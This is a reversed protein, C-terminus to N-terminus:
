PLQAKLDALTYERLAGHVIDAFRHPVDQVVINEWPAPENSLTVAAFLQPEAVAAHLAPTVAWESAQLAVKNEGCAVSLWRACMLIDEARIGVLSHGLLYAMVAPGEDQNPAGYFKHNSGYTEGFGSLDVTLVPRGEKLLAAVAEASRSKGGSNVVLTPTGQPTEPLFFVAPLATREKLSLILTRLTVKNESKTEHNVTLPIPLDTLPRIGACRRVAERLDRNAANLTRVKELRAAEDRMLDYVSRAGDLKMVQGQETVNVEEEKIGVETLPPFSVDSSKRLWKSMFTVAGAKLPEAWGHPGEYQTLQIKDEAGM